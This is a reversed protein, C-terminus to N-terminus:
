PLSEFGDSNDSYWFFGGANSHIPSIFYLHIYPYSILDSNQELWDRHLLNLGDKMKIGCDAPTELIM